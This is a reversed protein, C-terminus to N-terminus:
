LAMIKIIEAYKLMVRIFANTLIAEEVIGALSVKNERKKSPKSNKNGNIILSRSKM